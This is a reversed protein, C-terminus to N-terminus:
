RRGKAPDGGGAVELVILALDLKCQLKIELSCRGYIRAGALVGPDPLHRFVGSILGLVPVYCASFLRIRKLKLRWGTGARNALDVVRRGFVERVAGDRM